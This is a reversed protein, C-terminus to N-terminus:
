LWPSLTPFRRHTPFCPRVILEVEGKLLILSWLTRYIYRHQRRLGFFFFFPVHLQCVTPVSISVFLQLIFGCPRPLFVYAVCGNHISLSPCVSPSWLGVGPLETPCTKVSSFNDPALLHQPSQAIPLM